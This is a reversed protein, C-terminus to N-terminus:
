VHICCAVEGGEILGHLEKELAMAVGDAFVEDLSVTGATEQFFDVAHQCQGIGSSGFKAM